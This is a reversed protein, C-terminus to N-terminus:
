SGGLFPLAVALQDTLKLYHLALSAASLVLGILARLVFIRFHRWASWLCRAAYYLGAASLMAFLPSFWFLLCALVGLVLSLNAGLIVARGMARREEAETAAAEEEEEEPGAGAPPEPQDVEHDAIAQQLQAAARAHGRMALLRAVWLFTVVLVGFGLVLLAIALVNFLM